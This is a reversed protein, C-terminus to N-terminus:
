SETTTNAKSGLTFAIGLSHHLCKHYYKVLTHMDM